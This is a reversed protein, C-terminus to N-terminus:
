PVVADNGVRVVRIPSRPMDSKERNLWASCSAQRSALGRFYFMCCGRHRWRWHTRKERAGIRDATPSSVSAVRGLALSNATTSGYSVQPVWAGLRQRTPVKLFSIRCGWYPAVGACFRKSGNRIMCMENAAAVWVRSSGM